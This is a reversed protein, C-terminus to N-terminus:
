KLLDDIKCDLVSCIKILTEVSPNAKDNFIRCVYTSHLETLESLKSQSINRELAIRRINAPINKIYM